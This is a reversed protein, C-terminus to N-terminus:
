DGHGIYLATDLAEPTPATRTVEEGSPLVRMATCGDDSIVWVGAWYRRMDQIAAATDPRGTERSM